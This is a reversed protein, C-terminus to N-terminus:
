RFFLKKVLLLIFKSNTYFYRKFLRKPDQSLRYLWELSMKRMWLPARKQENVFIPFAAGVGFLVARIESSHKAMWKEQKPCGLAVLVFNAGSENIRRCYEDEEAATLTRFPPSIAGVIKADPYIQNVKLVIKDLINQTSGYLFISLKQKHAEEILSVMMDMGPLREISEGHLFKVAKVLPMGDACVMNAGNVVDAFEPHDVAEITMHVNAFCVYASKHAKGWNLFIDCAEQYTHSDVALSLVEHKRGM